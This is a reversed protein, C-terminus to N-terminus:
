EFGGKTAVDSNLVVGSFVELWNVEVTNDTYGNDRNRDTITAGSSTIFGPNFYGDGNTDSLSRVSGDAMLVNASPGHVSFWDRMDQAVIKSTVNTGFTNAATPAFDAENTATILTGVPPFARPILGLVPGAKVAVGQVTVTGVGSTGEDLLSLKVGTGQFAPGDNQTEALPVGAKLTPDVFVGILSPQATTIAAGSTTQAITTTYKLDVPM